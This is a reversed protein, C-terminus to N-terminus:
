QEVIETTTPSSVSWADHPQYAALKEQRYSESFQMGLWRFIYDIVSSARRIAPDRTWGSPEFSVHEFKRALTEVPVGYQLALSTLIGITDMLGGMTSGEKAMRLFLEGPRNDDFLGVTIYGEHQDIAFKHTISSRTMQLRSRHPSTRAKNLEDSLLQSALELEEIRKRLVKANNPLSSAM